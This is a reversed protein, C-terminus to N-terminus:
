GAPGEVEDPRRIRAVSEPDYLVAAGSERTTLTGDETLERVEAYSLGTVELVEHVTLWGDSM